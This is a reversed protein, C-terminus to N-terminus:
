MFYNNRLYQCVRPQSLHVFFDFFLRVQCQKAPEIRACVLHVLFLVGDVFFPWAGVCQFHITERKERRSDQRRQRRERDREKETQRETETHAHHTHHTTQTTQATHPTTHETTNHQTNHHTTHSVIFFVTHVNLVDGNIGACRACTNFCTHTHHRYVSPRTQTSVCPLNEDTFTNKVNTQM